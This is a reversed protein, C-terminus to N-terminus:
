VTMKADTTDNSRLNEHVKDQFESSVKFTPIFREELPVPDGTRPNRAMRPKRSKVSFVGFGRLEIRKGEALADIISLLFGDVVTKTEFKTLGTQAAIKDVIDAKTVNLADECSASLLVGRLTDYTSRVFM